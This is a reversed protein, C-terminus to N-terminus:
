SSTIPERARLWAALQEPPLPRSVHYGQVLDCDLDRLAQLTAEDEVGEAVLELGLSRALQLTSVVVARARSSRNMAAVFSRDLKLETLPLTALHALSSYGTGYDDISVGVGSARVRDLVETARQPDALWLSETVEVVLAAPPVGHRLLASDLVAPLAVGLLASASVNVSVVLPQGQDAWARRQALALDLVASTLADMLGASEALHIFEDPGLLGRDPHAWRVLAEVGAVRGSRLHLKPQYHLVLEGRAIGTRLQEVLELRHRGQGHRADDFLVSGARAGKAAYMALDALQLLEEAGAADQPGVAIGVSADVTLSMSGFRFPRTLEVRLREALALAEAGALDPALVVFEDGGLRGLTDGARLSGALRPGMQRLVEDGAVHGLSDNIEKFRDLDIVLVAISGDEALHRDASDLSEYVARRNPLGTLEDTRAQSRSDALARVERFTVATRGLAALVAGFALAGALQDNGQQYGAFLLCLAALACFGPVLLASVGEQRGAGRSIPSVCAAAAFCGFSATWLLDLPGGAVYATHPADILQLTDALVFLAIGLALWWWSAGAGRGSVTLAGALLVLLLLDAIPFAAHIAVVASSEGPEQLAAGFAVAAGFAAATLGAVIGDLWMSVTLRPVRARLMLVLAVFALPYFVVWAVDAWAVGSVMPQRDLLHLASGAAFAAVAAAFWCWAARDVAVVVARVVLLGALAVIGGVDTAQGVPQLASPAVVPGAGALLAYGAMLVVATRRVLRLPRDGPTRPRGRGRRWTAGLRDM